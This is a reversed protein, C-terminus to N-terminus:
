ATAGSLPVPMLREVLGRVREFAAVAGKIVRQEEDDSLPVSDLAATFTRWHLGRGEPAGALHRAGFADGFGLKAAEKLLFAAGLNSGEAVYLWGLATPIDVKSKIAPHVDSIPIDLGLDDMDRVILPLRRRGVLDPVLAGLQADEYFADIDRHFQHQVKLFQGYRVRGAFPAAVMIRKDLLDHEEHTAAKLRKARASVDVPVNM